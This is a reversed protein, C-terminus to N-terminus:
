LYPKHLPYNIFKCFLDFAKQVVVELKQGREKTM